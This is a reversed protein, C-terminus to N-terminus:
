NVKIKRKLYLIAVASFELFFEAEGEHIIQQKTGGHRVFDKNSVLGYAQSVLRSIDSDFIENKILQGLTGSPQKLLIKLTSEISNIAEKISNEFDPPNSYIYNKAKLWQMRVPGLEDRLLKEVQEWHQLNKIKRRKRGIDILLDSYINSIFSRREAWKGDCNEWFSEITKFKNPNKYESEELMVDLDLYLDHYQQPQKENRGDTAYAQMVAKIESIKEELLKLKHNQMHCWSDLLHFMRLSKDSNTMNYM